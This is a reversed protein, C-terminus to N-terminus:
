YMSLSDQCTIKLNGCQKDIEIHVNGRRSLLEKSAQFTLDCLEIVTVRRLIM